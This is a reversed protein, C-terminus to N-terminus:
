DRREQAHIVLEDMRLANTSGTGSGAVKVRLSRAVGLTPVELRAGDSVVTPGSTFLGTGVFDKTGTLTVQGKGRLELARFRKQRESGM